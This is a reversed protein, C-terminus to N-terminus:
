EKVISFLDDSVISVDVNSSNANRTIGNTTVMALSIGKQTKTVRRFSDVKSKLSEYDHKTMSYVKNYYKMECLTVIKDARDIVLDIQAGAIGEAENPLCKWSSYETYIGAIGLAKKIQSIHWLCVREFALGRWSNTGPADYKHSWFHADNTKNALFKFHFTSFNDILQYMTGRKKNGFSKFSRIFGCYELDSLIGTLTGGQNVGIEKQIESFSLGEKNNGLIKVVRLYSAPQEFLSSYLYDYEHQLPADPAFFLRDINQPLSQERKLLSWYYPVGGAIMYMEIIQDRGMPLHLANVYQECEGLCFPQLWIQETLRNYLGGRNHVIKNVMWSTASACVILVVDKRASAWGNWFNELAPILDCKHTYMWSLEDLFIVKKKASSNKIVQKLLQFAELWNRPQGTQQLGADRLSQCFAKIQAERNEGHIGAHQFLFKGDFAERVLFTKGVRRRGYVAVFESRGSSLTDRLIRLEKERAIIM